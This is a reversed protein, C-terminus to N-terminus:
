RYFFNSCFIKPRLTTSQAYIFEFSFNQMFTGNIAFETEKTESPKLAKNGLQSKSATGSSLNFAEYQWAFQPRIGATGQAVRIKLEDVMELDFDETVRYAASIRYYPNTRNDEGFLSSSDIRYM